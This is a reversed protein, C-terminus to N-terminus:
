NNYPINISVFRLTCGIIVTSVADKAHVADLRWWKWSTGAGHGGNEFQCFILTGIFESFKIMYPPYNMSLNKLTFSLFNHSFWTTIILRLAQLYFFFFFIRWILFLFSRSECAPIDIKCIWKIKNCQFAVGSFLFM